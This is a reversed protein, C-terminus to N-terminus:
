FKSLLLELALAPKGLFISMLNLVVLHLSLMSPRQNAHGPSPINSQEEHHRSLYTYFERLM